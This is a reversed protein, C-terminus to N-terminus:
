LCFVTMSRIPTLFPKFFLQMSVLSATHFGQPNAKHVAQLVFHNESGEFSQLDATCEKECKKTFCACVCMSTCIRVRWELIAPTKKTYKNMDVEPSTQRGIGLPSRLEARGELENLNLSNESLHFFIVYQLM